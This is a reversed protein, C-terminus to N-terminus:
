QGKLHEIKALVRNVDMMRATGEGGSTSWSAFIAFNGHAKEYKEIATLGPSLTDGWTEYFEGLAEPDAPWENPRGGCEALMPAEAEDFRGAAMLERWGSM